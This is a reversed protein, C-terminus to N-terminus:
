TRRAAGLALLLLGAATWCGLVTLPGSVAAGEFYATSRLLQGTAGPPLYQGFAGWGVPLLEPATALGSLPVGLLVVLAAGLGLGVNGGLHGLGLLALGVAASGLALVAAVAWGHAEVSGFPWHLLAAVAGGIAAAALATTAAATWPRTPLLRRM